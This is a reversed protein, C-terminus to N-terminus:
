FLVFYEYWTDDMTESEFSIVPVPLSSYDKIDEENVGEDTVVDNHQFDDTECVNLKRDNDDSEKETTLNNNVNNKKRFVIKSKM